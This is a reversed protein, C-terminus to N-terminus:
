SKERITIRTPIVGSFVFNRRSNIRLRRIQLQPVKRYIREIYSTYINRIEQDTNGIFPRLSVAGLKIEDLPEPQLLTNNAISFAPGEIKLNLNRPMLRSLFEPQTSGILDPLLEQRMKEVHIRSSAAFRGNAPIDLQIDSFLSFMPLLENMLATAEAPTLEFNRMTYRSYDLEYDALMLKRKKNKTTFEEIEAADMGPYSVSIGAKTLATNYDRQTYTVGLDSPSAVVMSIYVYFLLASILLLLSWIVYTSPRRKKIKIRRSNIETAATDPSVAAAAFDNDTAAPAAPQQNM